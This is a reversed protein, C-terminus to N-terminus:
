HDREIHVPRKQCKNPRKEYRCTEKKPIKGYAYTEKSMQTAGVAAALHVLLAISIHRYICIYVYVYKYVYTHIYIYIYVYICIYM